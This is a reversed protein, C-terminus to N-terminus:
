SRQRWQLRRCTFEWPEGAVRRRTVRIKGLRNSYKVRITVLRTVRSELSGGGRSEGLELERCVGLEVEGAANSNGVIVERAM